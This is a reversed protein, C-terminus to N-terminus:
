ATTYTVGDLRFTSVSSGTSLYLRVAGGPEVRVRGTSALPTVVVPFELAGAGSVRYGTPLTFLTAGNSATGLNVIGRLEVRGAADIRYAPIATGDATYGNLPTITHWTDTGPIWASGDGKLWWKPNSSGDVATAEIQGAASGTFGNTSPPAASSTNLLDLMSTSTEGVALTEQLRLTGGANGAYIRVQNAKDQQGPDTNGVDPPPNSTIILWSRAAWAWTNKTGADTEHTGTGGPDGDYWTPAADVTITSAQRSYDHLTGTDDISRFRTGDWVLGHIASSAAGNWEKATDRTLPTIGDVYTAPNTVFVKGGRTAVLLRTTGYDLTGQTVAGMHRVAGEDILMTTGATGTTTYDRVYIAGSSNCWTILLNTGDTGIAPDRAPNFSTTPTTGGVAFEATKSFSSNFRYVYWNGSRNDDYGLVYYNTGIVTVGGACHFGAPMEALVLPSLAGTTKDVARWVGQGYFDCALAWLTSSGIMAVMGRVKDPTVITSDAMGTVLSPWTREGTPAATPAVIGDAVRLRGFLQILGYFSADGLLTLSVLVARAIISIPDGNAPITIGGPVVIGQDADIRIMGVTIMGALVTAGSLTGGTLKTVSLEALTDDDILNLQGEVEPSPAASGADNHAVTRLYYTVGAVLPSGDPLATIETITAATSRVLTSADPTFGQVTSIHYDIVTRLEVPEVIVVLSTPTGAVDLIAPSMAPPDTPITPDPITSPDLASGDLVPERGYVREVVDDASVDVSAGIMSEPTVTPPMPFAAVFSGYEDDIAAQYEVTTAGALDDWLRIEDGVQVAAPLGPAAITLVGQDLDDDEVTGVITFVDTDNGIVASLTEDPALDFAVTTDVTVSTAGSAAAAKVTASEYAAKVDAIRM